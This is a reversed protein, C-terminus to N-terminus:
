YKEKYSTSSNAQSYKSPWTGSNIPSSSLQSYHTSNMSYRNNNSSNENYSRKGSNGNNNNKVTSHNPTITTTTTTTTATSYRNNNNLNHEDEEFLTYDNTSKNNSNEFIDRKQNQNKSRLYGGSSRTRPLSKSTYSTNNNTNSTSSSNRNNSSYNLTSTSVSNRYHQQSMLSPSAGVNNYLTTNSSESLGSSGTIKEKVHDESRRKMSNYSQNRYTSNGKSTSYNSNINTTNHDSSPNFSNISSSSYTSSKYHNNYSDKQNNSNKISDTRKTFIPQKEKNINNNEISRNDKTFDSPLINGTTENNDSDTDYDFDYTYDHISDFTTNIKEKSVVQDFVQEFYESEDKTNESQDNEQHNYISDKTVNATTTTNSAIINNNVNTNNIDHSNRSNLLTNTGNRRLNDGNFQHENILTANNDYISSHVSNMNGNNLDNENEYYYSSGNNNRSSFNASKNNDNHSNNDQKSTNQQDLLYLLKNCEVELSSYGKWIASYGTELIEREEREKQIEEQSKKLSSDIEQIDITKLINLEDIEDRLDIIEQKLKICNQCEEDREDNIGKINNVDMSVTGLKKNNKAENELKRIKEKNEELVEKIESVSKREQELDVLLQDREIIVKELLKRRNESNSEAAAKARESENLLTSLELLNEAQETQQQSALPLLQQNLSEIETEYENQMTRKEKEIMNIKQNLQKKTIELQDRLQNLESEAKRIDKDKESTLDSLEKEHSLKDQEKGNKLSDIEAQSHGIEENLQRIENKLVAKEDQIIKYKINIEELDLLISQNKDNLDKIVKENEDLKERLQQRDERLSSLQDAITNAEKKDLLQQDLTLQRYSRDLKEKCNAYQKRLDEITDKYLQEKEKYKERLKELEFAADRKEEITKLLKSNLINIEQDFDYSTRRGAVESNFLSLPKQSEISKKTEDLSKSILRNKQVLNEIEEEYKKNKEQILEYNSQLNNYKSTFDNLKKNLSTIMSKQEEIVKEFKDKDVSFENTKTNLANNTEKMSYLKQKLNENDKMLDELKTKKSNLQQEFDNIQAELQSCQVEYNIMEAEKDEIIVKSTELKKILDKNIKKLSNEDEEKGKQITENKLKNQELKQIENKLEKNENILQEKIEVYTRQEKKKLNVEKQLSKIKEKSKEYLLNVQDLKAKIEEESKTSNNLTNEMDIILNKMESIMADDITSTTDMNVSENGGAMAGKELKALLESKEEELINLQLKLDNYKKKQYEMKELFVNASNERDEQIDLLTNKLMEMQERMTDNEMILKEHQEKMSLLAEHEYNIESNGYSIETCSDEKNKISSKSYNSSKVFNKHRAIRSESKPYQNNRKLTNSSGTSIHYTQDENFGHDAHNIRQNLDEINKRALFLEKKIKENNSILTNNDKELKKIYENNISSHDMSYKNDDNKNENVKIKELLTKNEEKYYTIERNLYSQNEKLKRVESQANVLGRSLETITRQSDTFQKISQRWQPVHPLSNNNNINNNNDVKNNNITKSDTNPNKSDIINAEKNDSSYDQTNEINKNDINQSQLDNEGENPSEDNNKNNISDENGKDNENGNMLLKTNDSNEINVNNVNEKNEDTASALLNNQIEKVYIEEALGTVIDKLHVLTNQLGNIITDNVNKMNVEEHNTLTNNNNNNDNNKPLLIASAQPLLKNINTKSLYNTLIQNKSDKANTTMTMNININTQSPPIKMEDSAKKTKKTRETSLKSKEFFSTKPQVESHPRPKIPPPRSSKSFTRSKRIKVVENKSATDNTSHTTSKAPKKHQTYLSKSVLSAKQSNTVIKSIPKLVTVSSVMVLLGTQAPCKFYTVGKITGNNKGTGHEFLEIGVWLGSKFHINGIFKVVGEQLTTKVQVADGLRPGRKLFQSSSKSSESTM